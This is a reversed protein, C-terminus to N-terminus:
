GNNRDQDVASPAMREADNCVSIFTSYIREGGERGLLRGGEDRTSRGGISPFHGGGSYNWKLASHYSFYLGKLCTKGDEEARNMELYLPSPQSIARPLVNLAAPRHLHVGVGTQGRM